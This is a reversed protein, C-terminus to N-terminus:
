PLMGWLGIAASSFELVGEMDGQNNLTDSSGGGVNIHVGPFWVQSLEPPPKHYEEMQVLKTRADNYKKHVKEKAEAPTESEDKVRLWDVKYKDVTNEQDKIAEAEKEEIAHRAADYERKIQRKDEVSM